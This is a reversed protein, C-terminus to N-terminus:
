AQWYEKTELNMITLLGGKGSGTDLNWINAANQPTTYGWYNVPTHGIFIEKFKDKTKFKVSNDKMAKYSLASSWLDRDWYFIDPSQNKLPEHRNFGGHIFLNMEDDIIYMSQNKFFDIHTQPIFVNNGYLLHKEKEPVNEPKEIIYSQLTEKGGQNYLLSVGKKIFNVFEDDHNGRVSLLNKIKLLEDVVGKTNYGRDVVDGLQILTDEEYDFKVKELLSVLKNYEGHIDGMVFTRSIM